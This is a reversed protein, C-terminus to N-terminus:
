LLPAFVRLLGRMIRVSLRHPIQYEETVEKSAALTEEFDEKMDMVAKTRYMLVGDEFHLYLSRYDLNITGTM